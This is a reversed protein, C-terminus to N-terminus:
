EFNKILLILNLAPSKLKLELKLKEIELKYEYDKKVENIKDNVLSNTENNNCNMQHKKLSNVYKYEKKCNVCILQTNLNNNIKVNDVNNHIANFNNIHKKTKYHAKIKDSESTYYDCLNCYHM